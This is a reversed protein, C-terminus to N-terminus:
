LKTKAKGIAVVKRSASESLFQQTKALAERKQEENVIAYRRFMSDTRHGTIKMAVAQPVGASIMNRSATRRLDHFLRGPVSAEKCATAWAKRFDGIQEGDRHFVYEAFRPESQDSKLIAASRRREIIDALEGEIPITEPKRSKSNAARLYIVDDAVDAWRLSQISGKRWGTLFGFRVFDRLYEPLKACVSEFDSTDFFGQRENGVESLRPIFPAASLLKNRQAVKFAQRLLKTRHNVTSNSYEGDRLNEIWTGVASSTVEVARWSGFYARVPKMNSEVKYNWKDRLKLDNELADLVENVTVRQQNPVFAPGGHKDAAIQGLRQKLFRTAEHHNKDMGAELKEDTRVHRAVERQEKGHAYYAIWIYAGRQFVRGQGRNMAIGKRLSQSVRIGDPGESQGEKRTRSIGSGVNATGSEKNAAERNKVTAGYAEEEVKV